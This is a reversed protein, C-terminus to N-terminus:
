FYVNELFKYPFSTSSLTRQLHTYISASHIRLLRKICMENENVSDLAPQGTSDGGDVKREEYCKFFYIMNLFSINPKRSYIITVNIVISLLLFCFFFKQFLKPDNKDM